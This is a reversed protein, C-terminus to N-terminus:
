AQRCNADAFQLQQAGLDYILRLNAQQVAGIVSMDEDWAGLALCFTGPLVMFLREKLLGLEVDGEGGVAAFHFSMSPYADFTGEYAYCLDLGHQGTSNEIRHLHPFGSFYDIMTNEVRNYARRPLMTFTAGSDM